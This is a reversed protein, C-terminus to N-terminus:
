EDEELHKWLRQDLEIGILSLEAKSESLMDAALTLTRASWRRADVNRALLPWALVSYGIGIPLYVCHPMRLLRWSSSADPEKCLALDVIIASADPWQGQESQLVAWKDFESPEVRVTNLAFASATHSNGLVACSLPLLEQHLYTGVVFVTPSIHQAQFNSSDPTLRCPNDGASEMLVSIWGALSPDHVWLGYASDRALREQYGKEYEELKPLAPHYKSILVGVRTHIAYPLVGWLHRRQWTLFFPLTYIASNAIALEPYKPVDFDDGLKRVWDPEHIQNGFRNKIRNEILRQVDHVAEIKTYLAPILLIRRQEFPELADLQPFASMIHRWRVEASKLEAEFADRPGRSALAFVHGPSSSGAPDIARSVDHPLHGLLSTYTDEFKRLRRYYVVLATAFAVFLLIILPVEFNAVFHNLLLAPDPSPPLIKPLTSAILM